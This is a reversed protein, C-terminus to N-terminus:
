ENLGQRELSASSHSAPACIDTFSIFATRSTSHRRVSWIELLTATIKGLTRTPSTVLFRLWEFGSGSLTSRPSATDRSVDLEALAAGLCHFELDPRLAHLAVALHNQKPASIGIGIRTGPALGAIIQSLDDSVAIDTFFPLEYQMELAVQKMPEATLLFWSGGDSTGPGIQSLVTTGPRYEADTRWRNVLNRLSITDIWVVDRAPDYIELM